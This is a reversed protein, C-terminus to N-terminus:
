DGRAGADRPRGGKIRGEVESYALATPTTGLERARELMDRIGEGCVRQLHPRIRDVSADAPHAYEEFAAVVGAINHCWEPPYVIGRAVVREALAEELARSVAILQNNAAGCLIGCRLRSISAEDFLGGIACPALVDCEASDIASPSVVVLEGFAERAAAVRDPDPDAVSLEAGAERVMRALPFGVAGLGQVLVRRGQLDPTGWRVRACERMAIFVGEATPTGTPGMRGGPGGVINHTYRARLADALEPPFGMDPGTLLMGADICHALFGLRSLDELAFPECHVTMKTGGFPIQAAANKYSMGRGLNLGDLLVEEEAEGLGHRRIGGARIAHYGNNLGLRSSHVNNICSMGLGAHVRISIMEHGGARMLSEIRDLGSEAGAEVLLKRARDGTAIRPESCPVQDLGFSAAYTSWDLDEDWDRSLRISSEGRARVVQLSTFDIEALALRLDM